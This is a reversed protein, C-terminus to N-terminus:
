ILGLKEANRIEKSLYVAIESADGNVFSHDFNINVIVDKAATYSAGSGSSSAGANSFELINQKLMNEYYEDFGYGFALAFQNGIEKWSKNPTVKEKDKGWGNLANYIDILWNEVATFAASIVDVITQIFLSIRYIVKSLEEIIPTLFDTFPKIVYLLSAVTNGILQIITLLPNIIPEIIKVLPEILQKNFTTIANFFSNVIGSESSLMSVLNSIYAVIVGIPGSSLATNILSGIEGFSSILGQWINNSGSTGGSNGNSSGNGKPMNGGSLAIKLEEPLDEGLIKSLKDKMEDISDGYFDGLADLLSNFNEIQTKAGDKFTEAVKNISEKIGKATEDWTKNGDANNTNFRFKIVEGTDVKLLKLAQKMWEPLKNALGNIGEIFNNMMTNVFDKSKRFPNGIAFDLLDAIGKISAKAIEFFTTFSNKAMATIIPGISTILEPLNTFSKNLMSTISSMVTKFVEPLHLFFNIIYDRNDVLWKTVKNLPELLKGEALFKFSEPFAGLAAQLDSISNKWQSNRGAFTSGLSDSFGAYKSAMIEVAKGNELEKKTLGDLEPAIKKLQGLNGSYSQSLTKVAQDLPMIGSSAMDTAAQMVKEIQKENLGLQTAMTMANNISDSDFLNNKSVKNQITQLKSLSLGSKEVATNFVTLAKNQAVFADQGQKAFSTLAQIIKLGAFGTVLKNINEVSKGLATFGSQAKKVANGDYQGKIRYTVSAM